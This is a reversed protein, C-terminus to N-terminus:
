ASKAVLSLAADRWTDRLTSVIDLCFDTVRLNKGINAKVLESHLYDYLAALSSAGDWADVDLSANLELVIEQAHLLPEHAKSPEGNRLAESARQLDLTLREYLMVLLQQPSATSVTAALYTERPSQYPNM